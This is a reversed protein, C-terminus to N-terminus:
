YDPLSIPISKAVTLVAKVRSSFPSLKEQAVIMSLRPEDGRWSPAWM